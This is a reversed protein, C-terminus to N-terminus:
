WWLGQLSVLSSRCRGGGSILQGGNKLVPPLYDMARLRETETNADFFLRLRM